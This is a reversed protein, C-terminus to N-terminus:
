RFSKFTKTNQLLDQSRMINKLLPKGKTYIAFLVNERVSRACHVWHLTKWVCFSASSANVVTNTNVTNVRDGAAAKIEKHLFSDFCCGSCAARTSKKARRLTQALADGRRIGGAPTLWLWDSGLEGWRASASLTQSATAAQKERTKGSALRLTLQKTTKRAARWRATAALPPLAGTKKVTLRISFLVLLSLASADDDRETLPAKRTKFFCMHTLTCIKVCCFVFTLLLFRTWFFFNKKM